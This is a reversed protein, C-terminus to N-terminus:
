RGPRVAGQRARARRHRRHRRCARHPRAPGARPLHWDPRWTCRPRVPRCRPCRLGGSRALTDALELWLEPAGDRLLQQAADALQDLVAAPAGADIVAEAALGAWARYSPDYTFWRHGARETRGALAQDIFAMVDAASRRASPPALPSLRPLRSRSSPKRGNGGTTAGRTRIAAKMQRGRSCRSLSSRTSGCTLEQSPRPPPTAAFARPGRRGTEPSAGGAPRFSGRGTGHWRPLRRGTATVFPSTSCRLMGRGRSALRSPWCRASRDRQGLGPRARRCPLRCLRPLAGARGAPCSQRAARGAGSRSQRRRRPPRRSRRSATLRSSLQGGGASNPSPPPRATSATVHRRPAPSMTRSSTGTSPRAMVAQWGGACGRM